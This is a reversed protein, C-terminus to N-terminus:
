WLRHVIPLATAAFQRLFYADNVWTCQYRRMNDSRRHKSEASLKDVMQINVQKSRKKVADRDGLDDTSGLGLRRGTQIKSRNQNIPPKSKHITVVSM